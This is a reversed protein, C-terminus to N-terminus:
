AAKRETHRLSSRAVKWENVESELWGVRGPSIQIPKPFNGKRWMRWLTTRSVNGAERQVEDFELIPDTTRPITITM